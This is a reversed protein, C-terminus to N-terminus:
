TTTRPFQLPTTLIFAVVMVRWPTDLLNHSFLSFVLLGLAMIRGPGVSRTFLLLIFWCYFALGVAGHEVLFLLYMNHPGVGFDWLMTAGLGEGLIPSPSSLYTEIAFAAAGRRENASFDTAYDGLGLRALTNADLYEALPTTVIFAALSGSLISLGVAGIGIMALLGVLRRQRRFGLEGQWFLILLAVMLVIWSARSFTLVVAAAVLAVYPLRLVMPVALLGATMTLTLAQGAQNANTFFGAARFDVTSFTPWFFDYTVILASAVAALAMVRAFLDPRPLQAVWILMLLLIVPTKLRAIFYDFVQPHLGILHYGLTSLIVWALLWALVPRYLDLTPATFLPRGKQARGLVALGAVGVFSVQMLNPPPGGLEFLGRPLNTAFGFVLALVIWDFIDPGSRAAEWERKRGYPAETQLSGM